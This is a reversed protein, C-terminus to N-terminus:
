VVDRCYHMQHITIWPQGVYMFFNVAKTYNEDRDSTTIKQSFLSKIFMKNGEQKLNVKFLFLKPLPQIIFIISIHDFNNTYIM